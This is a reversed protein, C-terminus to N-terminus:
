FLSIKGLPGNEGTVQDVLSDEEPGISICTNTATNWETLGLDTVLETPIGLSKATEHLLLLKEESDVRLVIKRFNTSFWEFQAPTMKFSVNGESDVNEKICRAFDAVVAHGAQAMKKGARCKLDDRWVIVQKVAM